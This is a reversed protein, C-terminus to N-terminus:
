VTKLCFQNKQQWNLCLKRILVIGEGTMNYGSCSVSTDKREFVNLHATMRLSVWCGFQLVDYTGKTEEMPDSSSREPQLLPVLGHGPLGPGRVSGGEASM